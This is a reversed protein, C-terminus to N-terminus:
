AAKEPAPQAGAADGPAPQALARQPETRELLWAAGRGIALVALCALAGRLSAVHLPVHWLLATLATLAGIGTALRRVLVTWLALLPVGASGNDPM